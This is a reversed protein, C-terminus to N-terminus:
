TSEFNKNVLHTEFLRGVHERFKQQGFTNRVQNALHKSDGEKESLATLLSKGLEEENTVIGLRGDQLPDISGDVNLGLAPTGSAMAELFVIGFGEGTSPMAFLDAMSYLEALQADTVKGLFKVSNTLNLEQSLAELRQKDDGDGAILYYVDEREKKLEPLARIIREHGKYQEARSLRGVTLIVQKGELGLKKRLGGTEKPQYQEQYQESVTNPLVKVKAPDIKAWSLFKRRTYRSVCTVFDVKEVLRQILLPPSQWADIGHLQLWIPAGTLKAVLWALPLTNIHGCFIQDPKKNYSFLITKFAYGIKGEKKPLQEIKNPLNQNEGYRPLITIRNVIEQAALATMLDRNYQAIGGSSGFADTVLALIHM